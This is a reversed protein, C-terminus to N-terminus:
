RAVALPTAAEIQLSWEDITSLSAQAGRRPVGSGRTPGGGAAGRADPRAQATCFALFEQANPPKAAPAKGKQRGKKEAAAAKGAAKGGKAANAAGALWLARRPLPSPGPGCRWGGLSAEGARREAWRPRAM